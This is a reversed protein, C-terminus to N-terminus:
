EYVEDYKIYKTVDGCHTTIISRMCHQCIDVEVTAGDDFISGYGCHNRIHFFEQIEFVDDIHYEKKCADCKVGVISPVEKKGFIKM